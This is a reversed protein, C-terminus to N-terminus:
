SPCLCSFPVSFAQSLFAYLLQKPFILVREPGCLVPLGRM